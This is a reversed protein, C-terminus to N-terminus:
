VKSKKKNDVFKISSDTFEITVPKSWAITNRGLKAKEEKKKWCAVPSQSTPREPTTMYNQHNSVVVSLV